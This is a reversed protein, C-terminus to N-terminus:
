FRKESLLREVTGLKYKKEKINLILDELGREIVDTPHMLIMAGPHLKGMVRNVMVETTPKKWDVTDVTWLITEMGEEAAIKVVEKNMSGSPPAFWLPRKGLIGELIENTKVIQERNEAGSLRSMDPHDYAHNGILHGEERIMKVLDSNKSAWKGEIFFTAKVKQKKLTNLISPINDEGWAVNILLSVMQKEPHGRYIPSPPLDELTVEPKVQDYVLLSEDFKGEEKMKKYSKEVNVKLGNRGPTKKWVEHIQANEPAKEYEKRKEKITQMLTDNESVPIAQDINSLDNLAFPNPEVQYGIAVIILFTLLQIFFRNWRNM